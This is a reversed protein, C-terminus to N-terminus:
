ENPSAGESKKKKKKKKKTKLTEKSVVTATTSTTPRAAKKRKNQLREDRKRKKTDVSEYHNAPLVVFRHGPVLNAVIKRYGDTSYTILEDDFRWEDNHYTALCPPRVGCDCSGQEGCYNRKLNKWQPEYVLHVPNVCDKRHCRHSVQMQLPWGHQHASGTQCRPPEGLFFYASIKHGKPRGKSSGSFNDYPLICGSRTVLFGAQEMQEFWAVHERKHVVGAPKEFRLLLAGRDLMTRRIDPISSRKVKSRVMAPSATTTTTTTTTM